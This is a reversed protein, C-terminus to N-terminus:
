SSIICIDCCVADQNTNLKFKKYYFDNVSIKKHIYLNKKICFM